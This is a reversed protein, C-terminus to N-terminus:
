LPQRRTAINPPADSYALFSLHFHYYLILWAIASRNFCPLLIPITSRIKTLSSSKLTRLCFKVCVFSIWFTTLWYRLSVGQRLAFFYLKQWITVQAGLVPMCTQIRQFLLLSVTFNTTLMSLGVFSRLLLPWSQRDTAGKCFQHKQNREREVEEEEREELGGGGEGRAELCPSLTCHPLVTIKFWGGFGGANIFLPVTHVHVYYFAQKNFPCITM